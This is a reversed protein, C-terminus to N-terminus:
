ALESRAAQLISDTARKWTEEVNTVTPLRIRAVVAADKEEKMRWWKIRAPGCREVQRQRPPAFKLTCILPRHQTAVTEYPVVKADTVLGRDRHKVLIFDIQTKTNGGRRHVGDSRYKSNRNRMRDLASCPFRPM